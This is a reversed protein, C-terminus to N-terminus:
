VLRIMYYLGQSRHAGPPARGGDPARMYPHYYYYYLLLLVYIYIYIYIYHIYIYIYVCRYIYINYAYYM